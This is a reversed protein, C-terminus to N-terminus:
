PMAGPAQAASAAAGSTVFGIRSLGHRHALAMIAVVRGHALRSDAALRLETASDSAAARAFLRELAADDLVQGDVSAAGQADVTVLVHATKAPLAAASQRPLDVKLAGVLLPAALMFIVLLVLMVDILPTMNIESMPRAPRPRELNGFSM